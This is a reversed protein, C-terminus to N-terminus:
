DIEHIRKEYNSRIGVPLLAHRHGNELQQFSDVPKACILVSVVLATPHLWRRPAEM